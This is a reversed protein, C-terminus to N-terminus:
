NRPNAAVFDAAFADAVEALSDRIDHQSPPSTYGIGGGEWTVVSAPRPSSRALSAGQYLMLGTSYGLGQETKLPHVRVYLQPRTDFRRSKAFVRIGRDRLKFEIDRKIREPRLGLEQMEPALDEVFVGVGPLGALSALRPAAPPEERPADASEVRQCIKMPAIVGGGIDGPVIRCRLDGSSGPGAADASAEPLEGPETERDRSAAPEPRPAPEAEAAPAAAPAAAPVPEARGEPAAEAFGQELTRSQAAAEAFSLFLLRVGAEQAPRNLAGRYRDSAIFLLHLHRLDRGKNRELANKLLRYTKAPAPGTVLLSMPAPGSRQIRRVLAREGATDFGLMSLWVVVSDILLGRAPIEYLRLEAAGGFRAQAARVVADRSYSGDSPACAAIAALAVAIVRVM